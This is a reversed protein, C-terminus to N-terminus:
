RGNFRGSRSFGRGWRNTKVLNDSYLGSGVGAAPGTPPQKAPQPDADMPEDFGYSGDVVMDDSSARASAPNVPASPTNGVKPYVSLVRGDATQNNFTAIVNDAGEKSEFVIEAIVLPHQKVVRCSTVIGGVPTVASEIDAATTGPAFNQAMVVFPGALGRITIGKNFAGTPKAMAKPGTPIAGNTGTEPHAPRQQQRPHSSQLESRILAQAVQAARRTQRRHSAPGTPPANPDTIRAALSGAGSGSARGNARPGQTQTEHLDHTWEGDINGTSHRPRSTHETRKKVGARSALSGALSSKSAPTSSRRDKGFIRAALAENKKRDRAEHIIKELDAAGKGGNKGNAVM